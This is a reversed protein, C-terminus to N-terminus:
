GAGLAKVTAIIGEAIAQSGLLILAGVVTWLLASRAASIKDPKGQAAVFLYGVYVMMVVVVITGIRIVFALISRLFAELSEPGGAGGLPNLLRTSGGPDSYPANGGTVTSQPNGSSGGTVTSKTEAFATPLSVVLMLSVLAFVYYFKM